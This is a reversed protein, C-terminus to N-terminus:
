RKREVEREREADIEEKENQRIDTSSLSNCNWHKSKPLLIWCVSMKYIPILTGDKSISHFIQLLSLFDCKICKLSFFTFCKSVLQNKINQLLDYVYLSVSLFLSPSLSHTPEENKTQVFVWNVWDVVWDTLWVAGLVTIKVIESSQCTSRNVWNKESNKIKVDCTITRNFLLFIICGHANRIEVLKM